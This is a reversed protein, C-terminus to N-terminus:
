QRRDMRELARAASENGMGAAVQLYFRMRQEPTEGMASTPTSPPPEVTTTAPIASRWLWQMMASKELNLIAARM